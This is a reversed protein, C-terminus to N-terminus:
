LDTSGFDITPRREQYVNSSNVNSSLEERIEGTDNGEYSFGVVMTCRSILTNKSNDAVFPIQSFYCRRFTTSYARKLLVSGFRSDTDPANMDTDGFACEELSILSSEEIYLDFQAKNQAVARNEAGFKFLRMQLSNRIHCFVRSEVRDQKVRDCDWSANDFFLVHGDPYGNGDNDNYKYCNTLTNQTSRASASSGEGGLWYCHIAGNSGRNRCNSIKSYFTRELRCQAYAPSYELSGSLTASDFMTVTFTTATVATVQFTLALSEDNGTNRFVVDDDVAMTHTADTVTVTTGSTTYTASNWEHGGNVFYCEDITHDKCNRFWLVHGGSGDSAGTLVLNFLSPAFQANSNGSDTSSGDTDYPDDLYLMHPHGTQGTAQTFGSGVKDRGVILGSVRPVAVSNVGYVGSIAVPPRRSVNMWARFLRRFATDNTTANATDGDGIAGWWEPLFERILRGDSFVVDGAGHFIQWPGAIVGANFTLTVGFDISLDSGYGIVVPVDFTQSTSFRFRWGGGPFILTKEASQAAAEALAVQAQDDTSGDGTVSYAESMVSVTGFDASVIAKDIDDFDTSTFTRMLRYTKGPTNHAVGNPRTVTLADGTRTTCLGEEADPDDDPAGPYDTDNWVIWSWSGKTTAPLNAGEGSVLNITLDSASIGDDTGPDITAVGLNISPALARM